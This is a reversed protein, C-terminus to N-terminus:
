HRPRLGFGQVTLDGEEIDFLVRVAGAWLLWVERGHQSPMSEAMWTIQDHSMQRLHALVELAPRGLEDLQKEAHASLIVNLGDGEAFLEDPPDLEGLPVLDDFRTLRYM